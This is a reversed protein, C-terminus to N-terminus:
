AAVLDLDLVFGPQQGVVSGAVDGLFQRLPQVLLAHAMDTSRGIMGLGLAFDLAPVLGQLVADQQLVIIQGAIQFCLDCGEDLVVIMPTVM